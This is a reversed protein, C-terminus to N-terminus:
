KGIICTVLLMSNCSVAFCLACSHRTFYLEESYNHLHAHGGNETGAIAGQDKGVWGGFCVPGMPEDTATVISTDGPGVAPLHGIPSIGVGAESWHGGGGLDPQEPLGRSITTSPGGALEEEGFECHQSVYQTIITNTSYTSSLCNVCHFHSENSM